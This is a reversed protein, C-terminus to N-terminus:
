PLMSYMRISRGHGARFYDGLQVYIKTASIRSASEGMKWLDNFFEEDRM